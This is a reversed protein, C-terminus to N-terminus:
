DRRRRGQADRSEDRNSRDYSYVESIFGPDKAYERPKEDNRRMAARAIARGCESFSQMRQRLESRLHKEREERFQQQREVRQMARSYEHANMAKEFRRVDAAGRLEIQEM